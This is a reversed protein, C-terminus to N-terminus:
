RQGRGRGKALAKIIGRLTQVEQATMKARTFPARINQAMLVRKEEPYFFGADQLETELHEFMRVLDVRDAAASIDKQFLDPPAAGEASAWIYAFINVAQALNLSQFAPNVPYTLIADALVVDANKLGAKEPGFLVGTSTGETEYAKLATGM